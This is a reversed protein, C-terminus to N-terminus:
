WKCADRLPKIAESLGSLNFTTMAPSSNFPVFEFLMTSHNMMKKILGVNKRFFLAEGDTSKGTSYKAAKEKDFRLTVTTTDIDYEVRPKMGTVIYMETKNEKCRLNLSPLIEKSLWGSIPSEAQLFAHVNKSDDIPSVETSVRWKSVNSTQTKGSDVGLSKSFSDYCELRKLDNAVAACKAIEVKADALVTAPMLLMFLGSIVTKSLKALRFDIFFKFM